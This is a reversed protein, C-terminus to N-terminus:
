GKGNSDTDGDGAQRRCLLRFTFPLFGKGDSWAIERRNTFVKAQDQLGPILEYQFALFRPPGDPQDHRHEVLCLDDAADFGSDDLLALSFVAHEDLHRAVVHSDVLRGVVHVIEAFVDVDVLVALDDVV